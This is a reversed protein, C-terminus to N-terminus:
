KRVSKGESLPLAGIGLIPAGGNKNGGQADMLDSKRSVEEAVPEIAAEGASKQERIATKQGGLETGQGEIGKGSLWKLNLELYEKVFVTSSQYCSDHFDAVMGASGCQVSARRGSGGM